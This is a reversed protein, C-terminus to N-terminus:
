QESEKKIMDTLLSTFKNEYEKCKQRLQGKSKATAMYGRTIEMYDRANEITGGHPEILSLVRDIHGNAHYGDISSQVNKSTEVFGSIRNHEMKVLKSVSNSIDSNGELSETDDGVEGMNLPILYDDLGEVTNKNEMQRVENRSMWGDNIAKGYAEFRSATDGRLLAATNFEYYYGSKKQEDSLLKKDAEEQWNVLWYMLSTTLYDRNQEEINSFTARNLDGVKHPPLNFWSAIDSRSFERSELFQSEVNTLGLPEYKAGSFLLGVKQGNEGSQSRTWDERIQNAAEASPRSGPLSLLGSPIASNAFYRGGHNEAAKALGFSDAAYSVVSYGELGGFGLGRLHFIDSPRYSYVVQKGPEGATVNYQVYGNKNIGVNVRDPLLITLEKIEGAAEPDSVKNVPGRTILAYGNGYLLAHAQLTEKFKLPTILKSPDKEVVYDQEHSRNGNGDSKYRKMPMQGVDGSIVRVAQYVTSISLATQPNMTIGSPTKSGGLGDVLWTSPNGVSSIANSLTKLISM